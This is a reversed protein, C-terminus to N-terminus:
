NKQGFKPTVQLGALTAAPSIIYQPLADRLSKSFHLLVFQKSGLTGTGARTQTTNRGEVGTTANNRHRLIGARPDNQTMQESHIQTARTGRSEQGCKQKQQNFDDM